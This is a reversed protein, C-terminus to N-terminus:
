IASFLLMVLWDWCQLMCVSIQWASCRGRRVHEAELIRLVKDTRGVCTHACHFASLFIMVGLM